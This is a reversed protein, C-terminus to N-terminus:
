WHLMAVGVDAGSDEDEDDYVGDAFKKPVTMTYVGSKPCSCELRRGSSRLKGSCSSSSWDGVDSDWYGCAKTTDSEYQRGIEFRFRDGKISVQELRRVQYNITNVCVVAMEITLNPIIRGNHEQSGYLNYNKASWHYYLTESFGTCLASGDLRPPGGAQITLPAETFIGSPTLVLYEGNSIGRMVAISINPSKLRFHITDHNGRTQAVLPSLLDDIQKKYIRRTPLDPYVLDIALVTSSLGSLLKKASTESFKVKSKSNQSFIESTMAIILSIAKNDLHKFQQAASELPDVINNLDDTSVVKAIQTKISDLINLLIINSTSSRIVEAVYVANMIEFVTTKVDAPTKENSQIKLLESKEKQQSLDRICVGWDDCMPTLNSLSSCFEQPAEVCSICKGQESCYPQEANQCDNTSTCNVTEGSNRTPVCFHSTRHCAFQSGCEEKEPTCEVSSCMAERCVYEPRGLEDVSTGDCPSDENTCSQRQSCVGLVCAPLESSGTTVGECDKATTCSISHSCWKEKNCVNWVVNNADSQDCNDASTECRARVACLNSGSQDVCIGLEHDQTDGLNDCDSTGLTCPKTVCVLDECRALFIGDNRVVGRCDADNSCTVQNVCSLSADCINWQNGSADVQSCSEPGDSCSNRSHCILDGEKDMCISRDVADKDVANDCENGNVTCLDPICVSDKCLPLLQGDTRVVEVCEQGTTCAVENVCKKTSDCINWNRNDADVQNCHNLTVDCTAAEQCSSASNDSNICVLLLLPDFNTMNECENGGPTCSNEVCFSGNCHDLLVGDTRIVSGCNSGDNCVVKDTCTNSSDCVNRRIGGITINECQTHSTNCKAESACFLNESGDGVCLPLSVGEQNTLNECENGNQTCKNEVCKQGDCHDLAIGESRFVGQCESASSCSVQSKCEKNADCVNYVIDNVDIQQCESASHRCTSSSQCVSQSDSQKGCIKLSIADINTMKECEKGEKTCSNTSCYTGNCHDLLSGDSRKMGVCSSGFECPIEDRCEGQSNCINWATGSADIQDCQTPDGVCTNAAICVLGGAGSDAQSCIAVLQNSPNIMGDCDRTGIRCANSVCVSNKCHSLLDGNSKRVGECDSGNTCSVEKVCQKSSNCVNWAKGNADVQTCSIEGDDCKKAEICTLEGSEDEMCVPLKRDQKDRLSVCEDGGISCANQTCVRSNCFELRQGTSTEVGSCQSGFGCEVERSCRKQSDCIDWSDGQVDIQTCQSPSSPCTTAAVCRLNGNGDDQCIPLPKKTRDTMNVCQNGGVSCGNTTCKSGDCFELSSGDARRIFACDAGSECAVQPICVKRDSCVNWDVGDADTQSCRNVNTSCTAAAVCQFGGGNKAVCVRLAEGDPSVMTDCEKGGITCINETCVGATCFQLQVGDARVVGNCHQAMDCSVQKHCNKDSGCVNWVVLDDDRETCSGEGTDCKLTSICRNDVCVPTPLAESNTM